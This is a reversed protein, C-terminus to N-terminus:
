SPPDFNTVPLGSGGEVPGPSYYFVAASNVPIESFLDNGKTTGTEDVGKVEFPVVLYYKHDRSMPLQFSFYAIDEDFNHLESIAIINKGEWIGIWLNNEPTYYPSRRVDKINTTNDIEYKPLKVKGVITVFANSYLSIYNSHYLPISDNPPLSIKTKTNPAEFKVFSLTDLRPNTENSSCKDWGYEGYQVITDTNRVVNIELANDHIFRELQRKQVTQNDLLNSYQTKDYSFPNIAFYTQGSIYIDSAYRYSVTNTEENVEPYSKDNYVDDIKNFIPHSSIIFDYFTAITTQRNVYDGNGYDDIVLEILIDENFSSSLNALQSIPYHIIGTYTPYTYAM